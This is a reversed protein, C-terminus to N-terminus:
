KDNIRFRVTVDNTASSTPTVTITVTDQSLFVRELAQTVANLAAGSVDCVAIRPRYNADNTVSTATLITDYSTAIVVTQASGAAVDIYISEVYGDIKESTVSVNNSLYTDEAVLAFGDARAMASACLLGFLAWKLVQRM